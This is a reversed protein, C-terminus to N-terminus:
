LLVWRFPLPPLPRRTFDSSFSSSINGSRLWIDSRLRSSSQLTVVLLSNSRAAVLSFFNEVISGTWFPNHSPLKFLKFEVILFKWTKAEDWKTVLWMITITLIQDSGMLKLLTASGRYLPNPLVPEGIFCFSRSFALQLDSFSLLFILLARRFKQKWSQHLYLM